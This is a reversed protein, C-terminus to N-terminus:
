SAGTRMPPSGGSSSFHRYRGDKGTTAAHGNGCTFPPAGSRLTEARADFEARERAYELLPTKGVGPEGVLVLASSSGNPLGDVLENVRTREARRGVLM